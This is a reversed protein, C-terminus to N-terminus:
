QSSLTFVLTTSYNGGSYKWGPAFNLDVDHVTQINNTTAYLLTQVGASLNVSPFATNTNRATLKLLSVPIESAGATLGTFNEAVAKVGIVWPVTSVVYLKLHNTYDKGSTINYDSADSFLIPTSNNLEVRLSQIPLMLVTGRITGANGSSFTSALQSHCKGVILLSFFLLMQKM